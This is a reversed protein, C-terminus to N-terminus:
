IRRLFIGWAASAMAISCIIVSLNIIVRLDLILFGTRLLFFVPGALLAGLVVGGIAFYPVQRTIRGQTLRRSFTAAAGGIGGGIFFAFFWFGLLLSLMNGVLSAGLMVGLTIFNDVQTGTFFKDDTAKVVERAIYGVETRVACASCMLRNTRIDRLYFDEYLLEHKRKCDRLPCNQWREAGGALQDDDTIGEPPAPLDGLEQNMPINNQTQNAESM